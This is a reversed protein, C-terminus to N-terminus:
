LESRFQQKKFLFQKTSELEIQQEQIEDYVKM